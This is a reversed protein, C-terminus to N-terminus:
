LPAGGKTSRVCAVDEGVEILKCLWGTFPWKCRNNQSRSAAAKMVGIRRRYEIFVAATQNIVTERHDIHIEGPRM